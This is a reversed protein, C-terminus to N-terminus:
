RTEHYPRGARYLLLLQQNMAAIRTNGTATALKIATEATSIAEPFHGAEANAAALTGVLGAQRYGTLLCAQSAYKVAQDGNRVSADPCTALMWALNNMIVVNPPFPKLALARRLYEVAQRSNGTAYELSAMETYTDVDPKFDAAKRLHYLAEINRGQSKLLSAYMKHTQPANPQIKLAILYDQEAEPFKGQLTLTHGLNMWPDCNGPDGKASRTFDEIAEPYNGKKAMVIGLQNYSDSAAPNKAVTDRYLNEPTSFVEARQFCLISSGLLLVGGLWQFWM